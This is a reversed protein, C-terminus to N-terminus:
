VRAGRDGATTPNGCRVSLQQHAAGVGAPGPDGGAQSLLGDAAGLDQLRLRGAATGLGHRGGPVGAPLREGAIDDGSPFSRRTRDARLQLQQQGPRLHVSVPASLGLQGSIHVTYKRTPATQV